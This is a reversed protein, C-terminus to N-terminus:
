ESEGTIEEFDQIESEGDSSRMHFESYMIERAQDENEAEVTREQYYRFVVVGRFTKMARRRITKLVNRSVSQQQGQNANQQYPHGDSEV